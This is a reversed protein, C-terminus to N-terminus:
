TFRGPNGSVGVSSLIPTMFLTCFYKVALNPFPATRSTNSCWPSCLVCHPRDLRNCALDPASRLGQAFPYPLVFTVLCVRRPQRTRFLLAELLEFALVKLQLTGVLNQMFCRSKRGPPLRGGVSTIIEKMSWCRLSHPRVSRRVTASRGLSKNYACPALPPAPAISAAPEARDRSRRCFRRM